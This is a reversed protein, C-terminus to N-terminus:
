TRTAEVSTSGIYDGNGNTSRSLKIRWGQGELQIVATVNKGALCNTRFSGNAPFNQAALHRESTSGPYCTVSYSGAAWDQTNVVVYNCPAQTCTGDGSTTSTGRTISGSPNPWSISECSTGSTRGAENVARVCLRLTQGQSISRSHSRDGPGKNGSGADSLEYRVIDRGNGSSAGWTWTVTGGNRSASLGPPNSPAGYPRVANSLPSWDACGLSDVSSCARVQFRYTTGNSLGTVRRNSGQLTWTRGTDSQVEYRAIAEGGNNPETFTLDSSTDGESAQVAGIRDPTRAPRATNSTAKEGEGAKNTAWVAFTYDTGNELGNVTAKRENGAVQVTRGGPSAQVTFGSPSDGNAQEVDSWGWTVDVLGGAVTDTDNRAAVVEAPAFPLGAPVEAISPASWDGDGAENTARVSFTYGTGNALGTWVIRQQGAPVQQTSSGSAPAPSIRLTYRSIPTGEVRPATWSVTIQGDGFETTPPAPPDPIQDPVLPASWASFELDGDDQVAENRAAVRFRYPRGNTLGDFIWSNSGAEQRQGADNEIVFGTIPAGNNAPIGWTLRVQRSEATGSPAPPADPIGVVTVRITAQSRREPEGTDDAIEYVVLATGFFGREPTFVVDEGQVTAGGGDASLVTLTLAGGAPNVDNAGAQVTVPENEVTRAVDDVAVPPPADFQTVRVAIVGEGESSGDSVEVTLRAEKGRADRSAAVTMTSADISATIGEAEGGVLRFEHGEVQDVDDVLAQLDLTRTGGAPLEVATAQLKPPFNGTIRVRVFGVARQEGEAVEYAFGGTAVAEDTATFVARDGDLEVQGGRAARVRELRLSGGGRAEDNALVDITVRGGPEVEDQDLVALPPLHDVVTIQVLARATLGDADTIEYTLSVSEEGLAVSIRGDDTVDGPGDVVAVALDGGPDDPDTDNALVDVVATTGALQPLTTDDRAAPPEPESGDARITVTVIGRASGGRGDTVGYTFSDFGEDDEISPPARYVVKDGEVALGADPNAGIPGELDGELLTLQDDDADTDNALVAVTREEGPAVTVEDAVAVPATNATPRIIVVRVRGTTELGGSDRVTFTLEDAGEAGRDATYLFGDPVREVDGKAPPEVVGIIGVPDGDPDLGVLPVRAMVTAGSRVRAEVVPARPRENPTGAPLVTIVVEGDAPNVAPDVVTYSTRYTGQGTAPALFRLEDGEVFITGDGPPMAVVERLTLPLGEPDVDNRIVPIATANGARVRVEDRQTIPSQDLGAQLLPRVVLVGDVVTRGDSVQYPVVAASTFSAASTIRAVRGELLEVSLGSEPDATVATAALLDGDLDLDNAVLDVMTPVGPRVVADDRVAVPPNNDDGERVEVRVYGEVDETGDSIQYAFTFQGPAGPTLRLIGSEDVPEPALSSEADVRNVILVDDNPDTDNALLDIEAGQDVFAVLRDNRAKPAINIGTPQVRVLLAGEAPEGGEDQIRYGIRRLGVEGGAATFRIQGNAQFEATGGEPTVEVLTLADGDPDVDNVLVDHVVSRGAEVVTTDEVARPAANSGEPAIDVVVQGEMGDAAGRATYTFAIPETRGAAPTVQLASGDEVVAVVAAEPDVGEVPEVVLVDCPDSRDNELVPVIVPRGPRASVRDDAVEPPETTDPDCAEQRRQEVRDDEEEEEEDEQADEWNAVEEPEDQTFVLNVGSSRDNLIVRGRNQRFVMDTNSWGDLRAARTDRGECVQAYAPAGQWAGYACGDLWVPPVPRGTGEGHLVEPDGGGLPVALLADATAVVVSDRAPGPQQLVAEGGWPELDVPGRGPIVLHQEKGDLLVVRDGVATLSPDAVADVGRSSRTGEPGLVHVDEAGEVYAHVLGDVGVATVTGADLTVTPAAEPDLSGLGDRPVVWVRGTRPDSLAGTLGGLQVTAGEPIARVDGPTVRAVDVAQIQSGARDILVVTDDVQAVDLQASPGAVKVELSMIQTNIRGLRGHAESTVWVGGDNLNVQTARFGDHQVAAVAVSAVVAVSLVAAAVAEHSKKLWKRM